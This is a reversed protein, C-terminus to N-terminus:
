RVCGRERAQGAAHCRRDLDMSPERGLDGAASCDGVAIGLQLGWSCDGVAIGLQLGWQLGWQPCLCCSSIPLAALIAERAPQRFRLSYGLEGSFVDEAYRVFQVALSDNLRLAQRM